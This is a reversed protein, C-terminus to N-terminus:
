GVAGGETQAWYSLDDAVYGQYKSHGSKQLYWVGDAWASGVLAVSLAAFVVSRSVASKM